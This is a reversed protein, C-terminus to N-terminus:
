KRPRYSYGSGRVSELADGSRGLKKRLAYITVSLMNDTRDADAGWLRRMLFDRDFVEGPNGAFLRLLAIEREVLNVQRGSPSLMRLRAAEVHWSGFDFDGGPAEGTRLRLLAAIRALLIDDDVTKSVYIDGGCALGKLEDRPSSYATLFVIPLDPNDQRMERCVDFGCKDPMAVDLLVLDPRSERVAELAAGGNMATRVDYGADRLVLSLSRLLGRDDDVLLIERKTM